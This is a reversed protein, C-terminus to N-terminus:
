AWTLAYDDLAHINAGQEVLYKVVELHGEGSATRLAQDDYVHINAGKELAYKILELSGYKSANILLDYVNGKSEQFITFQYEANGSVYTYNFQEKIKGISELMRLYLHKISENEKRYKILDPYRKGFVTGYYIDKDMQRISSLTLLATKDDSKEAIKQYIDRNM